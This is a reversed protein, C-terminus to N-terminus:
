SVTFLILNKGKPSLASTTRAAADSIGMTGKINISNGKCFIRFVIARKMSHGPLIGLPSRAVSQSCTAQRMQIIRNEALKISSHEYILDASGKSRRAEAGSQYDDRSEVSEAAFSGLLSREIMAWTDLRVVLAAGLCPAGFAAAMEQLQGYEVKIQVCEM